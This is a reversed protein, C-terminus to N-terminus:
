LTTFCMSQNFMEDISSQIEGTSHTETYLGRIIGSFVGTLQSGSSNKMEVMDVFVTGVSYSTVYPTPYGYGYYPYYGWWGWYPYYPYYVDVNTKHIYTVSIGLDPKNNPDVVTIRTYGRDTMNKVIQNIITMAKDGSVFGSDSGDKYYLANDIWFTKYSSFDKKVDYKTFVALDEQTRTVDAPYKTCSAVLIVGVILLLFPIKNKM